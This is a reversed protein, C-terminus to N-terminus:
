FMSKSAERLGQVDICSIVKHHCRIELHSTSNELPPPGSQRQDLEDM